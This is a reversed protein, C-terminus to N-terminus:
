SGAQTDFHNHVSRCDFDYYPEVILIPYLRRIAHGEGAHAHSDVFRVERFEGTPVGRLCRGIRALNRKFNAM